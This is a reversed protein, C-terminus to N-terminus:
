ISRRGKNAFNSSTRTISNFKDTYRANLYARDLLNVLREENENTGPFIENLEPACRICHKQLIRICHTKVENGTLALIISRLALEISQQLMFAAIEIEHNGYYNNAGELFAEARKFGTYFDNNAQAILENIKESSLETLPLVGNDYVLNKMICVMSYFIHGESIQKNLQSSQHLSFHITCDQM